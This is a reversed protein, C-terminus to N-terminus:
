KSQAKSASRAIFPAQLQDQVEGGIKHSSVETRSSRDNIGSVAEEEAHHEM